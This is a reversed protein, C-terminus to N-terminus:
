GDSGYPGDFGPLPEKLLALLDRKLGKLVLRSLRPFAKEPPSEVM